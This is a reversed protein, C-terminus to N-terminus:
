ARDCDLAATVDTTGFDDGIFLLPAGRTRALASSSTDGFNLVGDHNEGILRAMNRAPEDAEAAKIGLVM